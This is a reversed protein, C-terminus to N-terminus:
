LFAVSYPPITELFGNDVINRDKDYVKRMLYVHNYCNGCIRTRRHWNVNDNEIKEFTLRFCCKPIPLCHSYVTINGVSADNSFFIKYGLGICKTVSLTFCGAFNYGFTWNYRNYKLRLINNKDDWEGNEFLLLDEAVPNGDMYFIGLLRNPKNDKNVKDHYMWENPTKSNHIHLKNFILIYLFWLFVLMFVISIIFNITFFYIVTSALSLRFYWYFLTYYKRHYCLYLISFMVDVCSLFLSVLHMIMFQEYHFILLCISAIITANCILRILVSIRMLTNVRKHYQTKIKLDTEEQTQM